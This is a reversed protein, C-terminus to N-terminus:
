VCSLRGETYWGSKTVVRIHFPRLTTDRNSTSDGISGLDANHRRMSFDSASRDDIQPYRYTRFSIM